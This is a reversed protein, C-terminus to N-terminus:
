NQAAVETYSESPLQAALPQDIVMNFLRQPNQHIRYCILSKDEYYVDTEYTYLNAFDQCWFYARSELITRNELHTYIPWTRTTHYLEEASERSVQSSNIEPCQSIYSHYLDPYITQALLPSGHFFHSQAYEIPKKEVYVFIYETPIYYEEDYKIHTMFEYLDTHRGYQIIQYLEDTPSVITYSYQPYTKILHETLEVVGNYRTLEFYLYGHYYGINVILACAAAFGCLSLTEVLSEAFYCAVISFLLDLPMVAVALLFLHISSCLRSGAILEPLGVLPAAYLFVFMCASLLMPAYNDLGHMNLEFDPVKKQVLAVIIRYVTLLILSLVTILMYFRGQQPYLTNWGELLGEALKHVLGSVINGIKRLVGLVTDALSRRPAVNESSQGPIEGTMTETGVTSFGSNEPRETSPSDPLLTATPKTSETAQTRGEAASGNIVNLAWNISGQFPIGSALAGAMPIVSVALGLVAATVLPLFHTKRFTKKLFFAFFGLCLFGAMITTYFHISLSASLALGFVLLNEDWVRRTPRRGRLPHRDSKLYRIYFAACLFQTFLGFEQPLTWQLRSISYVGDICDMKLILFLALSFLVSGRWSFIEKLLSYASLLFVIMHIPATFLLCSYIKIGFLTHMSYIFCHMAEPYVGDSFIKGLTLNYTWSHHVYMDGFGYSYDQFTGWSFYIIGYIIVISLLFYELFRSKCKLWIKKMLLRFNSRTRQFTRLVFLKLGYEGNGLRKLTKLQETRFPIFRAICFFFLGYFFFLVTWKNLLHILGLFLIVTNIVVISCVPCFCVHFTLSKGKLIKHFVVSPWVFMLFSYAMFVKIYEFVWYLINDM